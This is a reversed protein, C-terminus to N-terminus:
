WYRVPAVKKNARAPKARVATSKTKKPHTRNVAKSAMTSNADAPQFRLLYVKQGTTFDPLVTIEVRNNTFHLQARDAAPSAKHYQFGEEALQNLLHMYLVVDTTELQLMPQRNNNEPEFRYLSTVLKVKENTTFTYHWAQKSVTGDSEMLQTAPAKTFGKISLQAASLDPNEAYLISQLDRINISQAFVQGTAALLCALIM